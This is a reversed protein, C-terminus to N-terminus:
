DGDVQGETVVLDALLQPACTPIIAWPCMSAELGQPSLVTGLPRCSPKLFGRSREEGGLSPDQTAAHAERSRLKESGLRERPHLHPTRGHQDRHGVSTGQQSCVGQPGARPSQALQTWLQLATFTRSLGSLASHSIPM